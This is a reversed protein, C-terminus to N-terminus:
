KGPGQSQYNRNITTKPKLTLVGPVIEMDEIEPFPAIQAALKDFINM